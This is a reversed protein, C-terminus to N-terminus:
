IRSRPARSTGRARERRRWGIGEHGDFGDDRRWDDRAAGGGLAISELSTKRAVTGIPEVLPRVRPSRNGKTPMPRRRQAFGDAPLCEAHPWAWALYSKKRAFVMFSGACKPTNVEASNKSFQIGRTKSCM